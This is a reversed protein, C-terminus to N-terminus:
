YPQLYGGGPPTGGPSTQLTGDKTYELCDKACNHRRGLQVGISNNYRDMAEEGPPQDSACAEHIDGAQLASVEGLEEAMRCSWYCHRFADAAGNHIGGIGGPLSPAIARAMELAENALQNATWADGIGLLNLM